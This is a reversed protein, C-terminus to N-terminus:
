FEFTFSSLIPVKVISTQRFVHFQGPKKNDLM